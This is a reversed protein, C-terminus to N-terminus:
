DKPSNIVNRERTLDIAVLNRQGHISHTQRNYQTRKTALNTLQM